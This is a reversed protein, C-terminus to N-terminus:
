FVHTTSGYLMSRKNVMKRLSEQVDRTRPRIGIDSIRSRVRRLMSRSACNALLSAPSPEPMVSAAEDPIDLRRRDMLKQNDRETSLDELYNRLVQMQQRDIAVWCQKRKKGCCSPDACKRGPKCMTRGRQSVLTWLQEHIFGEQEQIDELQQQLARCKAKLLGHRKSKEGVVNQYEQSAGKLKAIEVKLAKIQMSYRTLERNLAQVEGDKTELLHSCREMKIRYARLKTKYKDKESTFEVLHGDISTKALRIQRQQEQLKQKSLSESLRLQQLEGTLERVVKSHETTPTMGEIRERLTAGHRGSAALDVRLQTVDDELAEKQSMFERAHTQTATLQSVLEQGRLEAIQVRKRLDGLEADQVAMKEASDQAQVKREGQIRLSSDRTRSLQGRLDEVDRCLSCNKAVLKENTLVKQKIDARAEATREQERQHAGSREAELKVRIDEIETNHRLERTACEELGRQKVDLQRKQEAIQDKLENINSQAARYERQHREFRERLTGFKKATERKFEELEQRAGEANNKSDAEAKFVRDIEAQSQSRFSENEVEATRFRDRLTEFEVQVEQVRCTLGEAEVQKEQLQVRSDQLEGELMQIKNTSDQCARELKSIQEQAFQELMKKMDEQRATAETQHQDLLGRFEIEQFKIRKQLAEYDKEMAQQEDRASKKTQEQTQNLDDMKKEWFQQIEVIRGELQERDKLLATHRRAFDKNEQERASLKTQFGVLAEDYKTLEADREGLLRVNYEFDNKLRAYKLNHTAIQSEYKENQETLHRERRRSQEEMFSVRLENISQWEKQKEMVKQKLEEDKPTHDMELQNLLSAKSASRARVADLDSTDLRQSSRPVQVSEPSAFFSGNQFIKLEPAAAASLRESERRARMEQLPSSLRDHIGALTSTYDGSPRRRIPPCRLHRGNPLETIHETM